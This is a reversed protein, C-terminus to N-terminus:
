ARCRPRSAAPSARSRWPRRRTVAAASRWPCRRTFATASTGRRFAMAANEHRRPREAMAGDRVAQAIRVMEDDGESKKMVSATFVRAMILAVIAGIPALYYPAPIDAISALTLPMSISM